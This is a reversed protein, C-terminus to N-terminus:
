HQGRGKERKRNGVGVEVAVEVAGAVEEFEVIGAVEMFEVVGAVEIKWTVAVPSVVGIV